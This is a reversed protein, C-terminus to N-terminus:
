KLKAGSSCAISIFLRVPASAIALRAFFHILNLNNTRYAYKAPTKKEM